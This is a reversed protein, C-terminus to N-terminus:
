PLESLPPLTLRKDWVKDRRVTCGVFDPFLLLTEPPRNHRKLSMAMLDNGYASRDMIRRSLLGEGIKKCVVDLLSKPAGPTIGLQSFRERFAMRKDLPVFSEASM